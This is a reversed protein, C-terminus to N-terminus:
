RRRLRQSDQLNRWWDLARAEETRVFADKDAVYDARTKGLRAALEMKHAGYAAVRDPYARLWDRFVLHREIDPAGDRYLHLHFVRVDGQILRLFMRGPTGNEGRADYGLAVLAPVLAAPDEAVGLIDITPKACLGPVATSGIHHLVPLCPALRAAEAAFRAPWSPDPAVVLPM